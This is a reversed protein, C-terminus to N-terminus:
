TGRLAHADFQPAFREIVRSRNIKLSSTLLGNDVSFPKHTVVYAVVQAYDPLTRNAAAITDAVDDISSTASAVVVAHVANDRDFACAQVIAGQNRLCTEIEFPHAKKGNAFVLLESVRGTLFLFGEADFRGADGTHIFGDARFVARSVSEPADLYRDAWCYEGRVLVEGEPSIMVEKHPFPQGVSGIRWRGPRNLAILGTETTGYGEYVPMSIAAFFDLVERRMPASGTVMLRMAGGLFRAVAAAGSSKFTAYVGDFFLPVAVLLTPRHRRLGAVLDVPQVLVTDFGHLIAAYVYSRQGFHSLPMFIISKDDACLGFMDGISDLFDAVSKARLAIAKPMGTTGSTFQITFVDEPKWVAAVCDDGPLEAVTPRPRSTITGDANAVHIGTADFLIHLRFRCFAEDLDFGRLDNHFPVSVAGVAICALDLVIWEYDNDFRIGLRGGPILGLGRLYAALALADHRLEAYTRIRVGTPEALELRNRGHHRLADILNEFMLRTM